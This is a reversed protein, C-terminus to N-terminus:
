IRPIHSTYDVNPDEPSFYREGKGGGESEKNDLVSNNHLCKAMRNTGCVDCISFM